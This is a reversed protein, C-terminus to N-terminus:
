FPVSSSSAQARVGSTTETTNPAVPASYERFVPSAGWDARFGGIQGSASKVVQNPNALESILFKGTYVDQFKGEKVGVLVKISRSAFHKFFTRLEEVNGTTIADWTELAFDGNTRDAKCYTALFDLVTQEGEKAVRANAQTDFKMYDYQKTSNDAEIAAIDFNWTNQVKNNIFQKKGSTSGIVERRSVFVTMKTVFDECGVEKCKLWFELRCKPGNEDQTAYSPENPVDRGLIQALETSTPNVAVVSFEGLGQYLKNTKVDLSKINNFNM